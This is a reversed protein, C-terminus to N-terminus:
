RAEFLVPLTVKSPGRARPLQFASVAALLRRRLAARAREHGHPARTTDALVAARRVKGEATVELRLSTLGQVPALASRGLADPLGELARALAKVPLPGEIFPRPQVFWGHVVLRAHRVDRTGRVERVGHPIRPDFVVLRNFRPEVTHLLEDAEHFASAESGSWWDLVRDKLLITEGGEFHPSPFHTLSFVFAFPGHPVDAHLQQGCGDVYASLWPPSVDHCGLTRRGWWVLAQHFAQYRQRPFLEWAPTRLQTYQGPVHWYDWVFRGGDARRPDAFRQDFHARLARAHPSFRDVTLIM